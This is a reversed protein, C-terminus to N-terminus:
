FRTTLKKRFPWSTERNLSEAYSEIFKGTFSKLNIPLAYFHYYPSRESGPIKLHAYSSIHYVDAKRHEILKKIFYEKKEDMAKIAFLNDTCIILPFFEYNKRFEVLQSLTVPIVTIGKKSFQYSLKFYNQSRKSGFVLYFVFDIHKGELLSM